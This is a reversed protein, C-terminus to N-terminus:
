TEIISIASANAIRNLKKVKLHYVGMSEEFTFKMKTEMKLVIVPSYLGIVLSDSQFKSLEDLYILITQCSDVILSRDQKFSHVIHLNICRVCLIINFFSYWFSILFPCNENAGTSFM